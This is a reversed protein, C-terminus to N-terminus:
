LPTNYVDVAFLTFSIIWFTIRPYIGCFYLQVVLYSHAQRWWKRRKGRKKGSAYWKTLMSRHGVLGSMLPANSALDWSSAYLWLGTVLELAVLKSPLSFLSRPTLALCNVQCNEFYRLYHKVEATTMLCVFFSQATLLTGCHQCSLPNVSTGLVRNLSKWADARKTGCYVSSTASCSRYSILYM